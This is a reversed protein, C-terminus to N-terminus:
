KKYSFTKSNENVRYRYYELINIEELLFPNVKNSKAYYKIKKILIEKKLRSRNYILPPKLPPKREFNEQQSCM